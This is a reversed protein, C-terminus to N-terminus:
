QNIYDGNESEDLKHILNSIQDDSLDQYRHHLEKWTVRDEDSISEATDRLGRYWKLEEIVAEIDGTEIANSRIDILHSIVPDAEENLEPLGPIITAYEMNTTM